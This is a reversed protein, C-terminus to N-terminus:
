TTTSRRRRAAARRAELQRLEELAEELYKALAPTNGGREVEAKAWVLRMKATEIEFRLMMQDKTM